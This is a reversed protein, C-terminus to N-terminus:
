RLWHFTQSFTRNASREASSESPSVRIPPGVRRCLLSEWAGCSTWCTSLPLPFRRTGFSPAHPSNAARLYPRGFSQLLVPGLGIKMQSQDRVWALSARDSSLNANSGSFGRADFVPLLGSSLVGSPLIYDKKEIM